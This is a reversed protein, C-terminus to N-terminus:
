KLSPDEWSDKKFLRKGKTVERGRVVKIWVEGTKGGWIVYKGVKITKDGNFDKNKRFKAWDKKTPDTAMDDGYCAHELAEADLESGLGYGSRCEHVMEHFLVAEMKASHPHCLRIKHGSEWGGTLTGRCKATGIGNIITMKDWSALMDTRLASFDAKLVEREVCRDFAENIEKQLEKSCNYFKAM